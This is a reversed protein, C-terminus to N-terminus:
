RPALGITTMWQALGPFDPAMQALRAAANRAQVIDHQLAFALSLQYLAPPNNPQMQLSQQLLSTARPLDKQQLAIVGLSFATFGTPHLEYAHQLYQKARDPQNASLLTRGALEWATEIRPEDRILGEYEAVASDAKGTKVYRDALMAKAQPWPMGGRSVNFALSDVFSVPKYTGRYDLQKSVPLFPWRTTVTKITHYAILSDLPTLRMRKTYVDWGAFRSVDAKRGLFNARRLADFYMSAILVYGRQNPHVHELFLDAGPIRYQAAAAFSELVPVYTSGTKKAVRQVISQFDSPARFRIVDLDKAQLFMSAAHVSDGTALVKRASDYVVTAGSDPPVASPGFPKIDRLNSPTSGIFVPIGASRFRSLAVQLNSSYQEVGRRYTTGGLTIRQDGVVSEMRTADAEIDRTTRGGRVARLVTNAANRLLLFTKLRQLKLYTRVLSPFSGLKETSGAGLAGYYENHGGYIVIADPKQGIIDGTLDVITYSNTAAMGMNVVEVTDNPLVDTLADQLVHSFTGNAPYPFGAASSEGLVFIRLSHTPKQILFADGPPSPPYQEQPFYRKGLNSAPVLYDAGLVEPSEFAALSGGYNGIRLGVELLAILVFPFLLTVLLFLSAKIPSLAPTGRAERAPAPRASNKREANDRSGKERSKRGM